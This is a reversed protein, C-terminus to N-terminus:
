SSAPTIPAEITGVIGQVPFSVQMMGNSRQNEPKIDRMAWVFGVEDPYSNPRWAFFFPTDEAAEAFPDFNSRYWAPDLNDIQITTEFLRRRVVRGLYNGDESRGSEITTSRGMTLPTHGVYIRRTVQLVLGFYLVAMSPPLTGASMRVRWYQASVAEFVHMIQGDDDPTAAGAQTWASGDDSYEIFYSIGASGLNHRAIGVYDISQAEDLSVTVSQAAATNGSWPNYTAPNALQTVPASSSEQDATINDIEVVNHWGILPNDANTFGLPLIIM